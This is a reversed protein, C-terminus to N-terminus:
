RQVCYLHKFEDCGTLSIGLWGSLEVFTTGFSGVTGMTSVTWDSCAEWFIGSPSMDGFSGTWVEDIGSFDIGFEDVDIPVLLTDPADVFLGAKDDAVKVGDSLFYGNPNAPLRDIADKTSTSLLAIYTGPPVIGNEAAAQCIEDGGRLGTLAGGQSKLDGTFLGSTVFVTKPGQSGGPAGDAGDAGAM